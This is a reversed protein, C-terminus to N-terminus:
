RKAQEDQFRQRWSLMAAIGIIKKHDRNSSAGLHVPLSRAPMVIRSAARAVESGPTSSPNWEMGDPPRASDPM